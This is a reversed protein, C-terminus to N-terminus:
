VERYNPGLMALRLDDSNIKEQQASVLITKLTILRNMIIIDCIIHNILVLIDDLAKLYYKDMIKPQAQAAIESTLLPM